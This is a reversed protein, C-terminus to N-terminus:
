TCQATGAPPSLGSWVRRIAAHGPEEQRHAHQTTDEAALEYGAQTGQVCGALQGKWPSVSTKAVVVQRM